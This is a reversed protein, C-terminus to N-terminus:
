GELLTELWLFQILVEQPTMGSTDIEFNPAKDFKAALSDHYAREPMQFAKGQSIRGRAAERAVWTKYDCFVRVVLMTPYNVRWKNVMAVFKPSMGTSDAIVVKGNRLAKEVREEFVTFVDWAKGNKVGRSPGGWDGTLEERIGDSSFHVSNPIEGLLNQALTSKGGSVNGFIVILQSM